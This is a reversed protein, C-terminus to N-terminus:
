APATSHSQGHQRKAPKAVEAETHRHRVVGHKPKAENRPQEIHHGTRQNSSMARACPTGAVWNIVEARTEHECLSAEEEHVYKVDAESRQANRAAVDARLPEHKVSVRGAQNTSAPEQLRILRSNRANLSHMNARLLTSM